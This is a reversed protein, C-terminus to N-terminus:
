TRVIKKSNVIFEGLYKIATQSILTNAPATGRYTEHTEGITESSLGEQRLQEVVSGGGLVINAEAVQAKRLAAKFRESLKNFELPTMTNLNLTLSTVAEDSFSLRSIREQAECLAEIRKNASSNLFEDCDPIFSATLIAQASTQFSNLGIVLRDRPYLIYSATEAITNGDDLTLSLEVIRAGNVQIAHKNEATINEIVIPQIQNHQSDISLIVKGESDLPLTIDGENLVRGLEDLLRYTAGTVNYPNGDEDVIYIPLAVLTGALYKNM